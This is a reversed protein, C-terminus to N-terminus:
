CPHRLTASTLPPPPPYESKPRVGDHPIDKVVLSELQPGYATILDRCVPLLSPLSVAAKNRITLHRLSTASGALLRRMTHSDTEGWGSISLEFTALANNAALETSAPLYFDSGCEM